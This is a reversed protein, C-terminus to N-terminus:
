FFKSPSGYNSLWRAGGGCNWGDDDHRYSKDCASGDGTPGNACDNSRRTAVLSGRGGLARHDSSTCQRPAPALLFLALERASPQWGGRHDLWSVSM